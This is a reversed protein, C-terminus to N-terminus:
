PLQNYAALVRTKIQAPTLGLAPHTGLALAVAKIWKEMADYRVDETVPTTIDPCQDLQEYTEGTLLPGPSDNRSWGRYSGDARRIATGM